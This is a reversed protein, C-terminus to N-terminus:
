YGNGRVSRRSFFIKKIKSIKATGFTGSCIRNRYKTRMDGCGDNCVFYGDEHSSLYKFKPDWGTWQAGVPEESTDGIPFGDGEVCEFYFEITLNWPDSAAKWVPVFKEYGDKELKINWSNSDTIHDPSIANSVAFIQNEGESTIVWSKQFDKVKDLSGSVVIRVLSSAYCVPLLSSVMRLMMTTFSNSIMLMNLTDQDVM